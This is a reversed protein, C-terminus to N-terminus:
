LVLRPGMWLGYCYECDLHLVISLAPVGAPNEDIFMYMFFMKSQTGTEGWSSENMM